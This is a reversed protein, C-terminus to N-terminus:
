IKIKLDDIAARLRDPTCPAHLVRVGTAHYIGGFIAPATACLAPEGIGKAGWPGSPESVEVIHIKIPPIDGITPILYDHLNETNGPIYEEMIALGIGQATGGEIQGEVQMPNLAKGVDHAANIELVRVTGLACDVEVMATQAAFGYTGYPNGQGNNDLQTVPPDFYGEGVFVDGTPKMKPLSTLDIHHTEENDRVILVGGDIEIVADTGANALRLVQSRLKEGAIKVANGSVYAQRSASSKGADPTRDTDGWVLQIQRMPVGVADAAAQVLTTNTGQGIDQAGSYLTIRGEASIGIRMHSPNSLSTNGCGYWMCGIGVGRRLDGNQNTNFHHALKRASRWNPRLSELCKKLGVSQLEQGTSTKQGSRLANQMRFELPDIGTREAMEDILAEHVIASQPVGFGRFAGAVPQNTFVAKAKAKVSPVYYPGTAHIPVRDKVTLGWSVYAGTNFDGNFDFGTLIGKKNCGYRASIKSPHRKTTAVMSEWRNYAMRVPKQLKWAAISLFLQVSLDLKGGFGGGCATPIIRVNEPDIGILQAIEDRDMYPSQTTAHIELRNGVRRAWGAEPEIYAHEVFSTTFDKEVTIESSLFAADSDGKEVYGTALINGRKDEHIIHAGDALAEDINKISAQENWMVPLDSDRVSNITHYSGVLAMIPEGRYRVQSQALAPQDKVDPYIGYGNNGPIDKATIIDTIGEHESIFRKLDGIEFTARWFPSRIAKIWLASAPAGDDGFIEHGTLKPVGDTKIANAGVANGRIPEKIDINERKCADSVAQIIKQYGTCRCLVGGLADRIEDHTPNPYNELLDSAAMLMGPTCIGCQAAGCALFSKQLKNLVGNQALGEITTIKRREAQAIPMICSCIQKGDLLITCAGCDGGDCGIKTGTLGISERIVFALREAPSNNVTYNEGNVNLTICM